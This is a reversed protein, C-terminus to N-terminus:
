LPPVWREGIWMGEEGTRHDTLPREHAGYARFDTFGHPGERLVFARPLANIKLWDRLEYTAEVEAIWANDQHWQATVRHTTSRLMSIFDTMLERVAEAGTARRGDVTLIRAEPAMLALAADVDLADIAALLQEM